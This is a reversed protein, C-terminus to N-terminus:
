RVKDAQAASGPSSAMATATELAGQSPPMKSISSPSPDNDANNDADPSQRQHVSAERPPSANKYSPTPM